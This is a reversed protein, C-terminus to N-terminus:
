KVYDSIIFSLSDDRKDAFYYGNERCFWKIRDIKKEEPSSSVFIIKINNRGIFKEYIYLGNNREPNIWPMQFDIICFIDDKGFNTFIQNIEDEAKNKVNYLPSFCQGIAKRLFIFESENEPYFNLNLSVLIGSILNYDLPNDEFIIVKKMNVSKFQSYKKEKVICKEIHLTM